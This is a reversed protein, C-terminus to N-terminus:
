LGIKEQVAQRATQPTATEEEFFVIPLRHYRAEAAAQKLRDEMATKAGHWYSGQVFVPVAYPIYVVFDITQSGRLGRTGLPVQYDYEIKLADLALSVNWENTSQAEKGQILRVSAETM